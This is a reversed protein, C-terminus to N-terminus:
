APILRPSPPRHLANRHPATRPRSPTRCPVTAARYFFPVAPHRQQPFAPPPRSVAHERAGGGRKERAERLAASTSELVDYPLEDLEEAVKAFEPRQAPSPHWCRACLDKVFPPVFDPLKPRHPPEVIPNGM